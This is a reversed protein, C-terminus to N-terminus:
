ALFRAREAATPMSCQAHGGSLRRRNTAVLRYCTDRLGRPLWRLWAAWCWPWPLLGALILVATSQTHVRGSAILVMSDPLGARSVGAEALLQEAKDSSLPAFRLLGRRDLRILRRVGSHCFGCEGDFLVVHSLTTEM